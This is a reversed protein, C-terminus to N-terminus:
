KLSIVKKKFIQDGSVIEVFYFEAGMDTLNVETILQPNNVRMVVAGLKNYVTIVDAQKALVINFEGNSPNPFIVIGEEAILSNIGDIDCSDQCEGLTTYEGPNNPDVVVQCGVDPVCAWTSDVVPECEVCEGWCVVDLVTDENIHVYRNVVQNGGADTGVQVCNGDPSLYEQINWNDASFKYVQMSTDVQTTLEWVDDGDADTMPWCSGCWDNFEGNVEPINYGTMNSMDLRFTVSYSSQPALCDVCSGWCVPPLITDQTVNIYRNTYGFASYVCEAGSYLDEQINWNDASFKYEWGPADSPGEGEMIPVTIQWISDNDADEMQACNGCWGNFIGNLEPTTYELDTQGRLDLQFTVNYEYICSENDECTALSDYNSATEDMCGWDTMCSGDDITALSNYNCANVDTCGEVGEGCTGCTNYTIGTVDGSGVTWVRNAYSWYDTSPTCSWDGSAMNSSVLNEQVGDVVLLYQMDVTPAPELTFTWTGNGNDIADPGAAVNWNWFPGTLEVTSAAGCVTATIQISEAGDYECSGDDVTADSNYNLATPDTCGYVATSVCGNWPVIDLVVDGSSVTVARNVYTNAGDVTVVVCPLTQDLDEQINWVDASFKYEYTGPAVDTATLEWINDGNVDSMAWCNGCWGNFTGNVEPTTFSETVGNMDLRFTVSQSLATTSTLVLLFVGIIRNITKM